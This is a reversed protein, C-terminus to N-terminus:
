DNWDDVDFAIDSAELLTFRVMLGSCNNGVYDVVDYNISTRDLDMLGLACDRKDKFMKSLIKKMITTALQVATERADHDHFPIAKLIYFVYFKRDILNDSQSSDDMTGSPSDEIVLQVGSSNKFNSALEELGALSTCRSFHPDSATHSLEKLKTAVWEMYTNFNFDAM